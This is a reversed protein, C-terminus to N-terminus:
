KRAESGCTILMPRRKTGVLLRSRTELNVFAMTELIPENTPPWAMIAAKAAMNIKIIPNVIPMGYGPGSAMTTKIQPKIGNTPWKMPIDITVTTESVSESVM